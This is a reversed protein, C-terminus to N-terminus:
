DKLYDDLTSQYFEITNDIYKRPRGYVTSYLNDLISMKKMVASAKKIKTGVPRQLLHTVRGSKLNAKYRVVIELLFFYKDYTKFQKESHNDFILALMELEEHLLYANIIPKGFFLSKEFDVSIEGFSMAGKIAIGHALSTNILALSDNLIKIADNETDGKSFIIISDSFTVSKTQDSDMNLEKLKAYNNSDGLRNLGEKLFTLKGLITEHDNNYVMEKFGLIDFFAVFRNAKAVWSAEM